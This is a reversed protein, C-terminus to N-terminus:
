SRWIMKDQCQIWYLCFLFPPAFQEWEAQTANQVWALTLTFHEVFSGIHHGPCHAPGVRWRGGKAFGKCKRQVECSEAARHLGNLNCSGGLLHSRSECPQQWGLLPQCQGQWPTKVRQCGSLPFPFLVSLSLCCMCAPHCLTVHFSLWSLWSYDFPSVWVKVQVKEWNVQVHERGQNCRRKASAPLSPVVQLPEISCGRLESERWRRGYLSVLSNLLLITILAGKSQLGSIVHSLMKKLQKLERKACEM